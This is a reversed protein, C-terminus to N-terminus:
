RRAGRVALGALRSLARAYGLVPFYTADHGAPKALTAIDAAGFARALALANAGHQQLSGHDM